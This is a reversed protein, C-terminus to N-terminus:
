PINHTKLLKKFQGLKLSRAYTVFSNVRESIRTKFWHEDFLLSTSEMKNKRKTYFILMQSDFLHMTTMSRLKENRKYNENNQKSKDNWNWRVVVKSKENWGCEFYTEICFTEHQKTMKKHNLFTFQMKYENLKNIDAIILKNKEPVIYPLIKQTTRVKHAVKEDEKKNIARIKDEDLESQQCPMSSESAGTSPTSQLCLKEMRLQAQETKMHADFKKVVSQYDISNNETNQETKFYEKLKNIEGLTYCVPEDDNKCKPIGSPIQKFPSLKRLLKLKSSETFNASCITILPTISFKPKFDPCILKDDGDGDEVEMSNIKDVSFAQKFDTEQSIKEVM